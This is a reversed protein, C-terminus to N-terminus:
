KEDDKICNVIQIKLSDSYDDENLISDIIQHLLEKDIRGAAVQYSVMEMQRAFREIIFLYGNDLLFKMGLSIAIRKNGDQFCHSKNAAYFLHVLKDVFTPYYDDNQIHELAAELSHTNLVGDAGGGSVEVTKQHVLIVEEISQIYIIANSM